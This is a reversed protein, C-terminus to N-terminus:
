KKTKGDAKRARNTKKNYIYESPKSGDAAYKAARDKAREGANMKGRKAGQATPKLSDKELNGAKRSASIAIATAAGDDYGKAKMQQILRKLIPPNAM